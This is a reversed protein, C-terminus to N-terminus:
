FKLVPTRKKSDPSLHNEEHEVGRICRTKKPDVSVYYTSENESYVFGAQRFASTVNGRLTARQWSDVISVIQNTAPSCDKQTPLIKLINKQIGFIGIDLVQM